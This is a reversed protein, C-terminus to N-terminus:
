LFKREVLNILRHEFEEKKSWDYDPKVFDNLFVIAEESTKFSNLQSLVRNFDEQSGDFLYKVFAIRDNLGVQINSTFLTDNLSRKKVEEITSKEVVPSEKTVKEFLNAAIDASISHKFEEELSIQLSPLDVIDNKVPDRGTEFIEVVKEESIEEKVEEEVVIEENMVIEDEIAIELHVSELITEEIFEEVIKKKVEQEVVKEPEKEAKIEIQKEEVNLSPVLAENVFKLVSLKEYIEQAKKQLVNVDDKNKMQLISNALSVLEAELKKHM